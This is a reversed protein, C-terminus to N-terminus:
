KIYGNLLFLFTTMWIGMIIGVDLRPDTKKCLLYYLIGGLIVGITMGVPVFIWSGITITIM